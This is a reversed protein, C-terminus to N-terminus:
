AYHCFYGFILIASGLIMWLAFLKWMFKMWKDYGINSAGLFGMLASAHPLIYNCFGDGFKFALVATQRTIGTVDALPVLVPMVVAAQGTGSTIFFNVIVNMFLMVAPKLFDPFLSLGNALTYVVTDLVKAHNLIVAVTAGLGVIFGASTMNKMGKVFQSAIGSPDYGYVLGGALAMWFMCIATGIIGWGLRICGFMLIAFSIVFVALVFKHRSTVEVQNQTVDFDNNVKEGYLVSKTIDKKEREAYWILYAATVLYFLIFSIVRLWMGSYAPLEAITQAVATTPALIGTSFGIGVGLLITAVGVVADYGLTAALMVGLPAFGIFKNTSQTIGIVAFVLLLIPIFLKEKGKCTLALKGCYAHFMGTSLIVELSGGIVLLSFIIDAQKILGKMIFNPIMYIPVPNPSVAHYSDVLITTVGAATKVRDYTHPPIIYTLISVFILLMMIIVYAHPMKFKKKM